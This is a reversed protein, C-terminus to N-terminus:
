DLSHFTHFISLWRFFLVEDDGDLASFTIVDAGMMMEMIRENFFLFGEISPMTLQKVKEGDRM